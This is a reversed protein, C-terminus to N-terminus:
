IEWEKLNQFKDDSLYVKALSYEEAFARDYNIDEFVEPLFEQFKILLPIAIERMQPHAAKSCREKFFHRWERLNYTVAIETKLSNPLITRAEQPTSGVNLLNFYEDEIMMCMKVWSNYEPKNIYFKPEIFTISNGFKEHSYNCYRTSEQSYSGMRHRVIEHTVGRDTVFMVTIKEHEIVSEHGRTILNKVFPGASSETISDESKYCIRGAREIKQLIDQSLESEPVIVKAQEINM